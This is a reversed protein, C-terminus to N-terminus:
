GLVSCPNFVPVSEAEAAQLLQRDASVFTPVNAGSSTKLSLYGALQVADFTFLGHSDVLACAMDFMAETVLQRLFVAELHRQFRELLQIVISSAIEGARERRRLASRIEVQALTLIALQNGKANALRLVQETGPERVYLKVLASTDLYYLAM